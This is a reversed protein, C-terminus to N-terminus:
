PWLQMNRDKVVQGMEVELEKPKSYFEGNFNNQM